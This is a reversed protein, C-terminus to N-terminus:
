TIFKLFQQMQYTSKNSINFFHRMEITKAPLLVTNRVVHQRRALPQASRHFDLCIIGHALIPFITIANISCNFYEHIVPGVPIICVFITFYCLLLV